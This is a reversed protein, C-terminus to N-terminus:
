KGLAKQAAEIIESVKFPLGSVKNVGEAPILYEARLLQVLQGTNLEPVIVRDFGRLLEGLNEPFPSIHRLHIHSVEHGAKQLKLVAKRIAGFTSGWGVIALPGNDKGSSVKQTPIDKAIGAIKAMRADTMKQHNSADYSINGSDYDKEIGGIRHELGPTGPVAWNRALTEPDRLFPHFGEPDKRHEVPFPKYDAFDPISWPEASNGLTGDILMIVPTMYKTALRAAEIAVDFCDTPTSASIVPLPTDGNRGHVAQFLDSQEAKTPLGTSPGGRQANVIVLPLETSVALGIAETKLAIGPGSSSTVGLAGGYSAGIAACIAAIEDEAQFNKVGYSRMGALHHLISSAPTIPYSGLFLNLGALEAGAYLGWATAESGTITRYLGPKPDNEEVSFQRLGGGIEVTEGYAHGANLAMLNAEAIEPRKAFKKEIWDAVPKRSRGFMWLTLGLTWINKCRLADKKSLGTEKVAEMTLKTIDIEITQFAAMQGDAMPNSEYGAKKLNKETFAGTDVLLLGGDRLNDKNVKLAAPNLAVLVDPIDGPTLIESAGFNIQYASVGYTTGVPARIEAPYDPFTSLDDGFLATTDAFKSGVLQIGDGSDGAFRIVVSDLNDANGQPLTTAEM